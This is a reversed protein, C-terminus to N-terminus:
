RPLAKKFALYFAVGCGAAVAVVLLAFVRATILDALLLGTLAILSLVLALEAWLIGRPIKPNVNRGIM